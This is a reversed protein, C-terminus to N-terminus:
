YCNFNTEFMEINEKNNNNNNNTIRNNIITIM